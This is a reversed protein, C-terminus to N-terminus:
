TGERKARDRLYRDLSNRRPNEPVRVSQAPAAGPTAARVEIRGITVHITPAAPAAMPASARRQAVFASMSKPLLPGSDDARSSRGEESPARTTPRVDPDGRGAAASISPTAVHRDAQETDGPASKARPVAPAASPVAGNSSAAMAEDPEVGPARPVPRGPAGAAGRQLSEGGRGVFSDPMGLAHHTSVPPRPPEVGTRPPRASVGAPASERKQAGPADSLTGQAPPLTDSSREGFSAPERQGYQSEPMAASREGDVRSGAAHTLGNRSAEVVPASEDITMGDSPRFPRVSDPPTDHVAVQEARRDGDLPVSRGQFGHTADTRAVPDRGPGTEAHTMGPDRPWAAVPEFLSGIRPKAVRAQRLTMSALAHLYDNM